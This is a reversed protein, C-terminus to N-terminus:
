RGWSAVQEGGFGYDIEIDSPMPLPRQNSGDANMVWLRWPGADNRDDRNSLFVIHQGDYSFAASVNSPLQDVLTTVPRTLAVVGTGDPNISFIEWHPGEKSQYIIRGGNPAWDPDWDWNGNQVSRTDGDPTDTTIEVGAKSQYVIGDENWDPAQASDLAAIDRFDGGEANVRSLGFNPLSIREYDSLFIRQLIGPPIRPFRAALERVSVCGFFETDWCKYEGLLRSFVIWNGDPSWKPSTILENGGYVKREGSGDLNISYIGDRLFVVKGGDRSIAPDFGSTLFRVAGRALDYVYISGRGDQFVINGSLGTPGTVRTSPQPAAAPAATSAPAATPASDDSESGDGSPAEEAAPPAVPAVPAAVPAAPADAGSFVADLVPLENVGGDVTVLAASVWGAGAPLDERVIAVWAGDESRAAVELGEGGSAKGIIRYESGPGSRINLRAGSVNATGQAVVEPVVAPVVAMNAAADETEAAAEAPAAATTPLAPASATTTFTGAISTVVTSADAVPAASVAGVANDDAQATMDPLEDVGFIVLDNTEVWGQEGGLTFVMLWTADSNRGVVTVAEAGPLDAIAEGDPADYLSAGAGTVVGIAGISDLPMQASGQTADASEGASTAQAQATPSVATPSVAPQASASTTAASTTAAPTTATPSPLQTPTPTPPLPTPSPTPTPTPPEPPTVVPLAAIGFIVVSSTPAWGVVGRDTEIQLYRSDQTRGLVTVVDGASLEALTEGGVADQVIAGDLGVVAMKGETMSSQASAPTNIVSMPAMTVGVILLVALVRTLVQASWKIQVRRFKM